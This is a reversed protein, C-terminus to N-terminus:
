SAYRLRVARCQRLSSISIGQNLIRDVDEIYWLTSQWAADPWSWLVRLMALLSLILAFASYGFTWYRSTLRDPKAERGASM